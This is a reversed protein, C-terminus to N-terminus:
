KLENRIMNWFERPSVVKVKFFKGLMLLDEDGTILYNANSSKALALIPDDKRDRCVPEKLDEYQSVICVEKLFAIVMGSKEKSLRIKKQLNARVENLIYESIFITFQDLCLEFVAQCLGRSAFAAIIVNSDLVINM